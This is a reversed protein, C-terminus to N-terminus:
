KMFTLANKKSTYNVKEREYMMSTVALYRVNILLKCKKVNWQNANIYPPKIGHKFLFEKALTKTM